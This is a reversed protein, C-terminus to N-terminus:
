PAVLTRLRVRLRRFDAEALMGRTIFLHRGRRGGAQIAVFAPWVVGGRIKGYLAMEGDSTLGRCRGDGTIVLRAPMFHWWHWLATGGCGGVLVTLLVRWWGSLPLSAAAAVAGSVALVGLLGLAVPFRLECVLTDASADYSMPWTM